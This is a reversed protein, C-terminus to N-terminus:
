PLLNNQEQLVLEDTVVIRGQMMLAHFSCQYDTEQQTPFNVLVSDKEGYELARTSIKAQPIAFDHKMGPDLNHVTIRITEGPRIFITPNNNGFTMNKIELVIERTEELSDSPINAKSELNVWGLFILCSTVLFIIMKGQATGLQKKIERVM